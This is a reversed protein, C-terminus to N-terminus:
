CKGGNGGNSEDAGFIRARAAHYEAEREALSKQMSSASGTRHMAPPQSTTNRKLIKMHPAVIEISQGTNVVSLQSPSESEPPKSCWDDDNDNPQHTCPITTPATSKTEPEQISIPCADEWEDTDDEM